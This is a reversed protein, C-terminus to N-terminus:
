KGERRVLWWGYISHWVRGITRALVAGLLGYSPVLVVLFVVEVLFNSLGLAYQPFARARASFYTNVQNGVFAVIMGAVLIQAYPVSERYMPPFLYGMVVPVALIVGGGVA